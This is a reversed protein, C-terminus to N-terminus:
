AVIQCIINTYTNDSIKWSFTVEPITPVKVKKRATDGAGPVYHRVCFLPEMFIQHIFSHVWTQRIRHSVDLGVYM